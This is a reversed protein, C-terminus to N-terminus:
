PGESVLKFILIRGKGGSLVFLTCNNPLFGKHKVFQPHSHSPNEKPDLAFKVWTIYRPSIMFLFPMNGSGPFTDANALSGSGYFAESM